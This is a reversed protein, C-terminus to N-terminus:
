NRDEGLTKVLKKGKPQQVKQGWPTEAPNGTDPGLASSSPPRSDQTSSSLPIGPTGKWLTAWGLLYVRRSRFSAGSGADLSFTLPPRAPTQCSGGGPQELQQGHGVGQGACLTAPISAAVGIGLTVKAYLNIVGLFHKNSVM